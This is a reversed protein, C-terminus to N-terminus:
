QKLQEKIEDITTIDTISKKMPNIKDRVVQGIETDKLLVNSVSAVVILGGCYIATIAINKAIKGVLYASGLGLTAIGIAPKYEQPIAELAEKSFEKLDNFIAYGNEKTENLNEKFTKNYSLITISSCILTSFVICSAKKSFSM